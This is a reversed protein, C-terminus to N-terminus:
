RCHRLSLSFAQLLLLRGSTTVCRFRCSLRLLASPVNCGLFSSSNFLSHHVLNTKLEETLDM